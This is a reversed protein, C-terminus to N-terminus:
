KLFKRAKEIIKLAIEEADKSDRATFAEEPTLEPLGNPYRTPIYFRDLYTAEELLYRFESYLNENIEKLHEILKRVSHGWPDLGHLYFLSKLAKEASQQFFFCAHAHKGERRLLSAAELDSEATKIWRLAEKKAKEESM